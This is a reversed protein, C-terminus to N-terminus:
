LNFSSNNINKRNEKFRIIERQGTIIMYFALSLIIVCVVLGFVGNAINSFNKNSEFQQLMSTQLAYISVLAVAFNIYRVGKILFDKQKYAVFMNGIAFGIKVFAYLANAIVYIQGLSSFSAGTGIVLAMVVSITVTALLLIVGDNRYAKFKILEPDEVRKSKNYGLLNHAGCLSLLLYYGGLAGNWGIKYIIALAVNYAVFLINFVFMSIAGIMTRYSYNNVLVSLTESQKFLNTIKAKLLPFIRVCLYISYALFIAAFAFVVYTVVGSYKDPNAVFVISTIALAITVLFVIIVLFLPPNFFYYKIDEKKV